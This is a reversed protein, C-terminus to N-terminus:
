DSLKDTWAAIKPLEPPNTLKYPTPYRVWQSVDRIRRMANDNRKGVILVHHPDHELPDHVISLQESILTAVPVWVVGFNDHGAVVAAYDVEALWVTMSTGSGDPDLKFNGSDPRGDPGHWAPFVRRLLRLDGKLGAAVAAALLDVKEGM